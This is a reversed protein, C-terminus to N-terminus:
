GNDAVTERRQTVAAVRLPGIGQARVGRQQAAVDVYGAPVPLPIQAGKIVVARRESAM